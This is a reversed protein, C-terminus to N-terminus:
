FAYSVKTTSDTFPAREAVGARRHSSTGQYSSASFRELLHFIFLAFM